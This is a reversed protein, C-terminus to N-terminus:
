SIWEMSQPQYVRPSDSSDLTATQVQRSSPYPRPAPMGPLQWGGKKALIDLEHSIATAKHAGSSMSMVIAINEPDAKKWEYIERAIRKQQVNFWNGDDRIHVNTTLGMAALIQKMGTGGLVGTFNGIQGIDWGDILYIKTHKDIDSDVMRRGFRDEFLDQLHRIVRGYTRDYIFRSVPDEPLRLMTKKQDRVIEPKETFQKWHGVPLGVNDIGRESGDKRLIKQGSLEYVGAILTRIGSSYTNQIVGISDGIHWGIRKKTKPDLARNQVTTSYWGDSDKSPDLMLMYDILPKGHPDDPAGSSTEGLSAVTDGTDAHKQRARFDEYDADSGDYTLADNDADM